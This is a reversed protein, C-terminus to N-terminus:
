PLPSPADPAPRSSFASRESEDRFVLVAWTHTAGARRLADHRHNGDELVYAGDRYSVLLPPPEWGQALREDMADVDHDWEQEPVPISVDHDEPGALPHLDDLAFRVPGLFSAGAFALEAALAENDSGPSSLFTTVWEALRGDDDAQKAAEVSYPDDASM